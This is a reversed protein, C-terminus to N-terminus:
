RLQSLADDQMLQRSVIVRMIENDSAYITEEVTLNPDLDPEQALFASTIDKRYVVRGDDPSETGALIHLLTTKGSGNKAVFGVKQGENIGYSINSFLPNEGFSKAINEVSLYNM